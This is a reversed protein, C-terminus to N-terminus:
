IKKRQGRIESSKYIKKELGFREINGVFSMPFITTIMVITLIKKQNKNGRDIIEESNIIIM